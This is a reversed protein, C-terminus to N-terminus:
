ESSNKGQTYKSISSVVLEVNAANLFVNTWQSIEKTELIHCIETLLQVATYATHAQAHPVEKCNLHLIIFEKVILFLSDLICQFGQSESRSLTVDLETPSPEEKIDSIASKLIILELVCDYYYLLSHKGQDVHSDTVDDSGKQACVDGRSAIKWVVNAIIDTEVETSYEMLTQLDDVVNRDIFLDLNSPHSCLLLLCQYVISSYKRKISDESMQVLTLSIIDAEEHTLGTSVSQPCCSQLCVAVAKALVSVLTYHSTM